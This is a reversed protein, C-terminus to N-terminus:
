TSATELAPPSPSLKRHRSARFRSPLSSSSPARPVPRASTSFPLASARSSPAESPRATRASCSFCTRTSDLAVLSPRDFANPPMHPGVSWSTTGARIHVTEDSAGDISRWALAYSGAFPALAVHLEDSSSGAITQQSALPVLASSFSRVSVDYSSGVGQEAWAVVLESGTWVLDPNEQNFGTRTNAAFPAGLTAQSGTTSSTPTIRRLAIGRQDKDIALDTWATVFGGDPLASVVPESNHMPSTTASRGFALGQVQPRGQVDFSSFLLEAKSTRVDLLVIGHGQPGSSIPHRGLGLRRSATPFGAPPPLPAVTLTTTECSANCSDAEQGPGDDCEELLPDRIGDGCYKSVPPASNPAPRRSQAQNEM